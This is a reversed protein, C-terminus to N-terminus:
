GDCWMATSESPLVIRPSPCPSAASKWFLKGLKPIDSFNIEADRM